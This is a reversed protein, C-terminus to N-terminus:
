KPSLKPQAVFEATEHARLCHQKLDVRRCFSADCQSCQLTKDKMHILLVHQKLHRRQGFMQGCHDCGFPKLGSHSREHNALTSPLIFRKGCTSCVHPYNDTHHFMHQRLAARTPFSRDCESCQHPREGTHLRMHMTLTFKCSFSRGCLMCLSREKPAAPRHIEVVHRRLQSIRSFQEGCRKCRFSVRDTEGALKDHHQRSKHDRLSVRHMFSRGCHECVFPRDGAHRRQHRLLNKRRTFTKGCQVCSHTRDRGHFRRHSALASPRSCVKGCVECVYRREDGDAEADAVQREQTVADHTLSHEDFEELDRCTKGCLDCLLSKRARKRESRLGSMLNQRLFAKSRLLSEDGLIIQDDASHKLIVHEKLVALSSCVRGCVWCSPHKMNSRRRSLRLQIKDSMSTPPKEPMKCEKDVHSISYHKQLATLSSCIRSCHGCRHRKKSTTSRPLRRKEAQSEEAAFCDDVQRTTDVADLHIDTSDPRLVGGNKGVDARNDSGIKGRRLESIEGDEACDAAECEDDVDASSFCVNRCFFM